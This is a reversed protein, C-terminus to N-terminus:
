SIQVLGLTDYIDFIEDGGYLLLLEKRKRSDINLRTFLNETVYKIWRIDVM